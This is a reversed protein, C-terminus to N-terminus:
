NREKKLNYQMVFDYAQGYSTLWEKSWKGCKSSLAEVEEGDETKVLGFFRGVPVFKM